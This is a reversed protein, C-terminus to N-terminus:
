KKSVLYKLVDIIFVISKYIGVFSVDLFLGLVGGNNSILDVFLTKPTQTVTTYKLKDYVIRILTINEWDIDYYDKTLLISNEVTTFMIRECELPCLQDCDKYTQGQGEYYEFVANFRSTNMSSRIQSIIDDRCIELCNERRYTINTAEIRKVLTSTHSELDNVCHNYPESLKQDITKDVRVVTYSGPQIFNNLESETPLYSNHTISYSILSNKPINRIVLVLGANKFRWLTRENGLSDRKANFQYCKVKDYFPHVSLLTTTFEVQGQLEFRNELELSNNEIPVIGNQTILMPCMTFLPFELSEVYHSRVQTVVTHAMYEMGNQILIIVCTVCLTLM